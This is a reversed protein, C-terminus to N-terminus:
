DGLGLRFAQASHRLKDGVMEGHIKAGDVEELAAGVFQHEFGAGTLAPQGPLSQPNALPYGTQGGEVVLGQLDGLQLPIRVRHQERSLFRLVVADPGHGKAM